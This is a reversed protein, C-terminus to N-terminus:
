EPLQLYFVVYLPKFKVQVMSLPIKGDAATFPSYHPEASFVKAPLGHVSSFERYIFEVGM